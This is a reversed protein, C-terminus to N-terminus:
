VFANGEFLESFKSYQTKKYFNITPGLVVSSLQCLFTKDKWFCVPKFFVHLKRLRIIKCFNLVVNELNTLYTSMSM